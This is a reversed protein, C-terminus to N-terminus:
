RPSFIVPVVAQGAVEVDVAVGAVGPALAFDTSSGAGLSPNVRLRVGGRNEIAIQATAAQGQDVVGFDFSDAPLRAIPHVTGLPEVPPCGAALVVIGVLLVRM